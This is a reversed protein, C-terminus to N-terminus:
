AGDNESRQWPTSERDLLDLTNQYIEALFQQRPEGAACGFVAALCEATFITHEPSCGMGRLPEPTMYPADTETVLRNRPVQLAAERVYDNKKFTLPGGFAVYCGREVWPALVDKDLNFCHLLTGAEPFGEEDMIVLAEEHAERLHLILPLGTTHALAIQRRFVDRQVDRPSFDYHFDLGVEGIACTLPNKLRSIFLAEAAKTYDKANHPHCGIAVRMRPIDPLPTLSDTNEKDNTTTDADVVQVADAVQVADVVRTTDSEAADAQAAGGEAADGDAQAARGEAASAAIIKPLLVRAQERWTEAQDYVALNDEDECMDVVCCIFGLGHVACRALTLSVDEFMELHAHTDAVLAELPPTPPEVIRYGGRKKKTRFLTDFFLPDNSRM